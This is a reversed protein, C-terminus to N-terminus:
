VTILDRWPVWRHMRAVRNAPLRFILRPNYQELEVYEPTRRRLEKILVSAVREERREAPPRIQVIAIEGIAPRRDEVYIPDGDEFKPHMSDGRVTLAYIDTRGRLVAPRRLMDLVEDLHVDIQEAFSLEGNEHVEFEAGQVTGLLPVDNPADERPSMFTPIPEAIAAGHAADSPRRPATDAYFQAPSVDVAELVRELKEASPWSGKKVDQFFSSSVGARRAWEAWTVGEPRYGDLRQWLASPEGSGVFASYSISPRESVSLNKKHLLTSSM